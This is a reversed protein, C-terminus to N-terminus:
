NLIQEGPGFLFTSKLHASEPVFESTTTKNRNSTLVHTSCKHFTQEKVTKVNCSGVSIYYTIIAMYNVADVFFCSPFDLCRTMM